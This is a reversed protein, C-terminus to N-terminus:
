SPNHRCRTQGSRSQSVYGISDSKYLRSTRTWRRCPGTEIGNKRESRSPRDHMRFCVGNLHGERAQKKLMIDYRLRAMETETEHLTSLLNMLQMRISIDGM